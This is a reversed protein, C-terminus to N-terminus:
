DKGAITKTAFLTDVDTGGVEIKADKGKATTTLVFQNIGDKDVTVGIGTAASLATNIKAVVKEIDNDTSSLSVTATAAGAGKITFNTNGGVTGTKSTNAGFFTSADAGTIEITANAGVLSDTDITIVGSTNTAKTVAGTGESARAATQIAAALTDANSVNTFNVATATGGNIAIKLDDTANKGTASLNTGFFTSADTGSIAITVNAGKLSLTDITLKGPPISQVITVAGTVESARAATQIATALDTSHNVGTFSVPTVTGGNIAIKLDTANKGTVSLKTGFFTSADAGFIEIKADTGTIVTTITIKGDTYSATVGADVTAGSAVM